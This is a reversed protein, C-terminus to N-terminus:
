DGMSSTKANLRFENEISLNGIRGSPVVKKSSSIITTVRDTNYGLMENFGKRLPHYKTKSM